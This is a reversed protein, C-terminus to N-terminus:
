GPLPLSSIRRLDSGQRMESALKAVKRDSDILREIEAHSRPDLEGEHFKLLRKLLENEEIEDAVWRAVSPVRRMLTELDDATLEDLEGNIYDLVMDDLFARTEKTVPKGEAYAILNRYAGILERGPFRATPSTEISMTNDVAGPEAGTRQMVELVHDYADQFQEAIKAVHPDDLIRRQMEAHSDADLTGYVFSAMQQQLEAQQAREAVLMAISATSRMLAEFAAIAEDDLEGEVYDTFLSDLLTRTAADFVAGEAYAILDEAITSRSEMPLNLEIHGNAHSVNM